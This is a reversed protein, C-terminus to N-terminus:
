TSPSRHYGIASELGAVIGRLPSPASLRGITELVLTAIMEAQQEEVNSYRIRPLYGVVQELGVDEIMRMLVRNDELVSHNHECLIHGVEHLIIHDRHIPSTDSEFCIHDASDTAVWMGSPAGLSTLGSVPHLRLTRGRRREIGACLREVDFPDPIELERIM